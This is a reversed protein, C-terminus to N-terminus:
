DIPERASRVSLHTEGLLHLPSLGATTSRSASGMFATLLQELAAWQAANERATREQMETLRSELAAAAREQMEALRSELNTLANSVQRDALAAIIIQELGTQFQSQTAELGSIRSEIAARRGSSFRPGGLLVAKVSRIAPGLVRYTPRWFLIYPERDLFM